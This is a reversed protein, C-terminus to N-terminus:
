LRREVGAGGQRQRYFPASGRRPPASLDAVLWDVVAGRQGDQARASQRRDRAPLMMGSFARRDDALLNVATSRAGAGAAPRCLQVDGVGVLVEVDDDLHGSGQEDTVWTLHLVDVYDKQMNGKLDCTLCRCTRTMVFEVLLSASSAALSAAMTSAGEDVIVVVGSTTVTIQVVALTEDDSSM